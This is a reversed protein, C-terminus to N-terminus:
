VTASFGRTAKQHNGFGYEFAVVEELDPPGRALALIARKPFRPSLSDEPLAPRGGRDHKNPFLGSILLIEGPFGKNAWGSLEQVTGQQISADRAAVGVHGVGDLVEFPFRSPLTADM